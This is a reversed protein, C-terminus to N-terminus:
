CQELVPLAMPGQPLVLVKEGKQLNVSDLAKEITQAYDMHMSRIDSALEPRTVFCVPTTILTRCLVQVQWQDCVSVEGERLKEYVAVPTDSALLRLFEEHGVGDMCEGAMIIRSDRRLIGEPVAIGKVCQYVNRDLPYGGNTTIVVDPAEKIRVQSHLNVSEAAANFSSVVDGSTAHVIKKQSDIVINLAYTRKLYRLTENAEARIPNEINGYRSNPHDINGWCHNRLITHTGAVGPLIVKSGGTFGAFFHPEVSGEIIVLESETVSRNLHISAGTSLNGVDVLQNRNDSDHIEVKLSNALGEGLRERVDAITEGKHLGTAVLVKVRDLNLGGIRLEELILPITLHSPVGRTRDCTVIVASHSEHALERLKPAGIPERLATKVTEKEHGNQWPKPAVVDTLASNPVHATLQSRGYPLSVLL